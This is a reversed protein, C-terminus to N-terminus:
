VHLHGAAASARLPVLQRSILPALESDAAVLAEAIRRIIVQLDQCYVSPALFRREQHWRHPIYGGGCVHVLECCECESALNSARDMRSAVLHVDMARDVAHELVSLGTSVAGEVTSKISDVAEYSGDSQIVLLEVPSLGLAEVSYKGGLLLHMIDEFFRIKTTHLDHGWWYDFLECLWIGYGYGTRPDFARTPRRVHNFHPLLFDIQPPSWKLLWDLTAIPNADPDIVSLLGGRIPKNEERTILELGRVTADFSSRGRHDRRFRDNAEQDGDISIGVRVEYKRFLSVYEESLLTANTQLGFRVSCLGSLEERLKHLAMEFFEVGALLPEGGHFIVLVSKTRHAAVHERIRAASRALIEMSM